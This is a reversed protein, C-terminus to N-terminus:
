IALHFLLKLVTILAVGPVGLAGICAGTIINLNISVGMINLLAYAFGGFIINILIVLIVSRNESVSKILSIGGLIGLAGYTFSNFFLM